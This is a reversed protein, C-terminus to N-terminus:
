DASNLGLPAISSLRHIWKMESDNRIGQSAATQQPARIYELVFIQVDDLGNHSSDSYHRGVTTDSKLPNTISYFHSKFREKITNKTQGVYLKSCTKCSICYILNNSNCTTETKTSYSQGSTINTIRGTHDLRPCYRCKNAICQRQQKRLQILNPDTDPLIKAHVLSDKLNSSRRHGFITKKNYICETTNTRGLTPWTKQVIDRLPACEPHFTSILFLDEFPDRKTPRQPPNLLQERDLRRAKLMAETILDEPYNRRIFHKGILAANKDFDSIKSCIRRVRLFQSFPLSRKLHPPHSSEYLLYNHSDTPKCFLDSYITRDTDIKILTDLFSVHTPSIESTFKITSHCSNLHELFEDLAERTHNWIMFIDDIYRLWILPQTRYPYVWKEEFSAMFINAFSPAVKTGMATGGVQLYHKGYFDFNNMYLVYELSHIIASNHPRDLTRRTANLLSRCANIGEENPINTYLSCVDITCLLSDESLPPLAEIKNIFDTTDKVYSTTGQVLPQLFFDAFQSIRETPSSNASVIPRGPVPTKNKHIKPLLYLQPTRPRINHLYKTCKDSIDGSSQLYDILKSTLENHLHTLDDKTEVYFQPDSLQRLGENVYDVTNQIVVASGKDAPKIIINKARKLEALAQRESSSLNSHSPTPLKYENLYAENFIAFAEFQVPGIPSWSSPNRFKRHDFAAEEIDTLQDPIPTPLLSTNTTPAEPFDREFFLKRRLSFFFPIMTLYSHGIM